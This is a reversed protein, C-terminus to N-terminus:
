ISEFEKKNNENNLRVGDACQIGIAECFIYRLQPTKPICILLKDKALAKNIILRHWKFNIFSAKVSKKLTKELM